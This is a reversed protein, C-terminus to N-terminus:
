IKNVTSTQIEENIDKELTNLTSRIEKVKNDIEERDEKDRRKQTAVEPTYYIEKNLEEDVDIVNFMRMMEKIIEVIREKNAERDKLLRQLELANKEITGAESKGEIVNMVMLDYLREDIEKNLITQDGTLDIDKFDIRTMDNDDGNYISAFLLIARVSKDMMANQRQKEETTRAEEFGVGSNKLSISELLGTDKKGFNIIDPRKEEKNIERLVEFIEKEKVPDIYNNTGYTKIDEFYEVDILGEHRRIEEESIDINNEAIKEYIYKTRMIRTQRFEEEQSMEEGRDQKFAKWNQIFKEVDLFLIDKDFKQTIGDRDTTLPNHGVMGADMAMNTTQVGTKLTADAFEKIKGVIRVGTGDKKLIYDLEKKEEKKVGRGGVVKGITGKAIKTAAMALAEVGQNKGNDLEAGYKEIVMSHKAKTENNKGITIGHEKLKDKSAGIIEQSSNQEDGVVTLADLASKLNAANKAKDATFVQVNKEDEMVVYRYHVDASKEFRDPSGKFLNEYIKDRSLSPDKIKQSSIYNEIFLTKVAVIGEAMLDSDRRIKTGDDKGYYHVKKNFADLLELTEFLRAEADEGSFRAELLGLEETIEDALKKAEERKSGTLKSILTKDQLFDTIKGITTTSADQVIREFKGVKNLLAFMKEQSTIEEGLALVELDINELIYKKRQHPIDPDALVSEYRKFAEQIQQKAKNDDPLNEIYQLVSAKKANVKNINERVEELGVMNLQRQIKLAEVQSILHQTMSEAEDLRERFDEESSINFEKRIHEPLGESVDVETLMRLHELKEEMESMKDGISGIDKQLKAEIRLNERAFQTAGIESNDFARGSNRIRELLANGSEIQTDGFYREFGDQSFLESIENSIDKKISGETKTEYSYRGDVAASVKNLLNHVGESAIIQRAKSENIEGKIKAVRALSSYFLNEGPEFGASSKSTTAKKYKSAEVLLQTFIAEEKEKSYNAEKIDRKVSDLKAKSRLVDKTNFVSLTNGVIGSEDIQMHSYKGITHESIKKVADAFRRISRDRDAESKYKKGFREEAARVIERAEDVSMVVEIGYKEGALKAAEKYAHLYTNINNANELKHSLFLMMDNKAEEIGFNGTLSQTKREDYEKAFRELDDGIDINNSAIISVTSGITAAELERQNNANVIDGVIGEEKLWTNKDKQLDHQAKATHYVFEDLNGKEIIHDTIGNGDVKLANERFRKELPTKAEKVFNMAEQAKYTMEFDLDMLQSYDCALKASVGSAIINLGFLAGIGPDREAGSLKNMVQKVEDMAKQVCGRTESTTSHSRIAPNESRELCAMLNARGKTIYTNGTLLGFTNNFLKEMKTLNHDDGYKQKIYKRAHWMTTYDLIEQEASKGKDIGLDEETLKKKDMISDVADYIAAKKEPELFNLSNELVEKAESSRIKNEEALSFLKSVNYMSIADEELKKFEPDNDVKSYLGEEVNKLVDVVAFDKGMFLKERDPDLKKLYSEGGNSKMVTNYINDTLMKQFVIESSDIGNKRLKGLNENDIKQIMRLGDQTFFKNFEAEIAALIDADSALGTKAKQQKSIKELGKKVQSIFLAKQKEIKTRLAGNDEGSLAKEIEVSSPLISGMSLGNGEIFSFQIIDKTFNMADIHAASAKKIFIKKELAAFEERFAPSSKLEYKGNDTSKDYDSFFKVGDDNLSGIVDPYKESNYRNPYLYYQGFYTMFEYSVGYEQMFDQVSGDKFSGFKYGKDILKKLDEYLKEESYEKSIKEETMVYTHLEEPTLSERELELGTARKAFFSGLDDVHDEIEDEAVSIADILPNMKRSLSRYKDGVQQLKEEIDRMAILLTRKEQDNEARIADEIIQIVEEKGPADKLKHLVENMNESGGYMNIAIEYLKQYVSEEHFAINSFFQNLINNNSNRVKQSGRKGTRMIEKNTMRHKRVSTDDAFASYPFSLDSRVRGGNVISDIGNRAEGKQIASEIGSRTISGFNEAVYLAKDRAGAVSDMASRAMEGATRM